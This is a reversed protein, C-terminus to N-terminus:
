LLFVWHSAHTCPTLIINRVMSSWSRMQFGLGITWLESLLGFTESSAFCFAFAISSSRPPSWGRLSNCWALPSWFLFGVLTEAPSLAHAHCWYFIQWYSIIPRHLACCFGLTVSAPFCLAASFISCLLAGSSYVGTHNSTIYKNSPVRARCKFIDGIPCM